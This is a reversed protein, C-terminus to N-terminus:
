VCPKKHAETPQASHEVTNAKFTTLIITFSVDNRRRSVRLQLIM